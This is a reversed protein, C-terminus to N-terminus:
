PMVGTNLAPKGDNNTIAIDMDKILLILYNARM